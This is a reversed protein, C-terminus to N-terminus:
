LYFQMFLILSFFTTKIEFLRLQQIKGMGKWLAKVDKKSAYIEIPKKCRPCEAKIGV